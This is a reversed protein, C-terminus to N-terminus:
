FSRMSSLTACRTVAIVQGHRNDDKCPGSQERAWAAVCCSRLLKESSLLNPQLTQTLLSVKSRECSRVALMLKDNNM